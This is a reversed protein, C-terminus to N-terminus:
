RDTKEAIQQEVGLSGNVFGVLHQRKDLVADAKVPEQEDDFYRRRNNKDCVFPLLNCRDTFYFVVSSVYGSM